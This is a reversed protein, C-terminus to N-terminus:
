EVNWSTYEVKKSHTELYSKYCSSCPELAQNSVFYSEDKSRVMEVIDSEEVLQVLLNWSSWNHHLEVIMLIIMFCLALTSEKRNLNSFSEDKQRVSEQIREIVRQVWNLTNSNHKIMYVCGYKSFCWCIMVFLTITRQPPDSWEMDIHVLDMPGKVKVWMFM